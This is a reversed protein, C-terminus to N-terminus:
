RDGEDADGSGPDHGVPGDEGFEQRAAMEEYHEASFRKFAPEAAARYAAIREIMEPPLSDGPQFKAMSYDPGKGAVKELGVVTVINHWDLDEDALGLLYGKFAGLSTPPLTVVAPLLKKPTLLFVQRMERCAKGRTQEGQENKATGWADPGGLKCTHCLLRGTTPDVQAPIAATEGEEDARPEASEGDPSSCTPPESGGAYKTAWYARTTTHFLIVGELAKTATSDGIKSPIEWTTAGGSPVRIQTLDFPTVDQGELAERVRAAADVDASLARYEPLPVLETSPTV